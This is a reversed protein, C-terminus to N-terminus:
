HFRLELVFQEWQKQFAPIDDTGLIARLTALGTPDNKAHALFERYFKALLGREQLFFCLYRVQGYHQNYGGTAGYFESDTLALLTEFSITRGERIAKQLGPLRWNTLGRIHGERDESQEFLSGLGENFWAPCAPFNARMFPHVIEHVLTGGGTAINMFLARDRTSYYGFPTSPTDGFLMRTHTEYSAKDKFLWIAIIEDPDYDFFDRKLREVAWRVTGVARQRVKVAPEDSAVIFPPQVLVTFDAPALRQVEALRANLAGGPAERSGAPPAILALVAPAITLWAFSSVIGRM